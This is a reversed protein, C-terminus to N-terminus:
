HMQRKWQGNFILINSFCYMKLKSLKDIKGTFLYYYKIFDTTKSNGINYCVLVPFKLTNIKINPTSLGLQV